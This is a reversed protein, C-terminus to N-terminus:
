KKQERSALARGVAAMDEPSLKVLIERQTRFTMYGTTATLAKLGMIDEVIQALDPRLQNETHTAMEVGKNRNYIPQFRNYPSTSM